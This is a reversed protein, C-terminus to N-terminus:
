VKTPRPRQVLVPIQAGRIVKDAVSGLIARSLGGRGHTELAILDVNQARAEDLIAAAAPRNLVVRSKVRLSRDQLKAAIGELYALNRRELLEVLGQNAFELPSMFPEVVRLLTYEAAFLEGLETASELIQEAVESGDLPILIHRLAFTGAVSVSKEQPRVLLVPMPLTRILADATSGLWFRSLGSRGHTAMVVLDAGGRVAQDHLAEAAFSNVLVPIAVTGFTNKLKRVVEDLYVTEVERIKEDVTVDVVFDSERSLMAIPSHARVIQVVAGARRAIDVTIPLAQESFDSGDLPVMILKYM